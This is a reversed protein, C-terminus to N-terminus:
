LVDRSVGSAICRPCGNAITGPEFTLPTRLVGCATKMWEDQFGRYAHVEAHGGITTLRWTQGLSVRAVAPPAPKARPKREDRATVNPKAYPQPDFLRDAM